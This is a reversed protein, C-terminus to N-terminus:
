ADLKPGECITCMVSLVMFPITFLIGSHTFYYTHKTSAYDKGQNGVLPHLSMPQIINYAEVTPNSLM